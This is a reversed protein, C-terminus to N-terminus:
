VLEHCFNYYVVSEKLDAYFKADLITGREISEGLNEFRKKLIRLHACLILSMIMPYTDELLVWYVFVLNAVAQHILVGYYVYPNHAFEFPFKHTSPWIRNEPQSIIVQASFMSWTVM